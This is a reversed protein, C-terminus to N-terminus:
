SCSASLDGGALAAKVRKVAFWVVAIESSSTLPNLLSTVIAYIDFACKWDRSTYDKTLIAGSIVSLHLGLSLLSMAILAAGAVEAFLVGAILLLGGILFCLLLAGNAGQAVKYSGDGNIPNVIIYGVVLQGFFNVATKSVTVELGANVADNIDSVVVPDIQLQPVVLGVNSKNITYVPISQDNAMQLAKVASLGNAPNGPVSLMAEPVLHELVSSYSGVLLNFQTRAANDGNKM